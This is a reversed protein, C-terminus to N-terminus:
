GFLEHLDQTITDPRWPELFNRSPLSIGVSDFLQRFGAEDYVTNEEHRQTQYELQKRDETVTLGVTLDILMLDTLFQQGHDGLAEVRDTLTKHEALFAQSKKPGYGPVGKINDSPDGRIAKYHVFDKLQIGKTHQEFNNTTIRQRKSPEYVITENDILQLLDQDSSVVFKHGTNVQTLHAVIDDAELEVPFMNRLGLQHFFKVSADISEFVFNSKSHDRPQKYTEEDTKRWRPKSRDIQKDWCVYTIDPQFEVVWGRVM